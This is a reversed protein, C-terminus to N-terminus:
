IKIKKLGMIHELNNYNKNLPKTRQLKFSSKLKNYKKDVKKNWDYKNRDKYSEEILTSIPAMPAMIFRGNYIKNSKARFEEISINGGFRELYQRPPACYIEKIKEDSLLNYLKLVLSYRDWIKHDKMDLNYALACNASCYNGFVHFKNDYYKDPLPFAINKFKECCWWCCTDTKKLVYNNNDLDLIKNELKQINYDKSFLKNTNLKNNLVSIEKTLKEIEKELFKIYKNDFSNDTKKKKNFSLEIISIDQTSESISDSKLSLSESNKKNYKDIDEMQIPIHAIICNADNEVRKDTNINMIKGTPKRGRKKLIKPKNPVKKKPKRGRKKAVTIENKDKKKPKRGRKKKINQSEM